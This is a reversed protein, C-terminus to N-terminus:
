QDPFETVDGGRDEILLKLYALFKKREDVQAPRADARFQAMCREQPEWHETAIIDEARQVANIRRIEDITDVYDICMQELTVNATKAREEDDIITPFQHPNM